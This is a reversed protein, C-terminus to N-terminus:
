ETEAPEGSEVVATVDARSAVLAEGEITRKLAAAAAGYALADAMGNGRGREALFSGVFASRAGSADVTTADYAPREYIEDGHLGVPGRRERRVVVTELDYTTRVSHGAPVVGGDHGFIEELEGESCFLVDVDSLLSDYCTRAEEASWFQDDYRLDFATETGAEVATELVTATTETLTESLAPTVGSVYFTEAARVAELPLAAATAETTAAGERDPVTTTNRPSGGAARYRVGVRGDVTWVVGTRVGHSRLERVVRRGLPTKPLRSLWATELGLASAAVAVNSEPGGVHVAFEDAAELPTDSGPSLRLVADGFTVLDTM